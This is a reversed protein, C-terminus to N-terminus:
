WQHLTEFELLVMFRIGTVTHWCQPKEACGYALLGVGVPIIYSTLRNSCAGGFCWRMGATSINWKENLTVPCYPHFNAVKDTFEMDAAHLPLTNHLMCWSQWSLIVLNSSCGGPFVSLRVGKRAARLCTRDNVLGYQVSVTGQPLVKRWSKGMKQMIGIVQSMNMFMIHTHTRPHTHAITTLPHPSCFGSLSLFLLVHVIQTVAAHLSSPRLWHVTHAVAPWPWFSIM